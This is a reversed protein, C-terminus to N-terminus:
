GSSIGPRSRAKKSPRSRRPCCARGWCSRASRSASSSSPRSLPPSRRISEYCDHLECGILYVSRDVTGVIAVSMWLVFRSSASSKEGSRRVAGEAARTLKRRVTFTFILAAALFYMKQWFFESHYERVANQMLQPIGTAVMGVIGIM